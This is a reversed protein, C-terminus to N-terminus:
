DFIFKDPELPYGNEWNGEYMEGPKIFFKGYGDFRGEKFHGEYYAGDTYHIICFGERIGKDFEGECVEGDPYEYKGIGGFNGNKFEGKYIRFKEDIFEGIGNQVGNKFNGIYEFKRLIKGTKPLILSIIGFDDFQFYKFNGEYKVNMKTHCFKGKGNWKGQIHQGEYIINNPYIFKGYEDVIGNKFLGRYETGDEFKHIGFGNLPDNNNLYIVKNLNKNTTLIKIENFLLCVQKNIDVINFNKKKNMKENLSILKKDGSKKCYESIKNKIENITPREESNTNCCKQIITKIEEPWKENTIDPLPYFIDPNKEIELRRYKNPSEGKFIEYILVGFSYIDSKITRKGNEYLEPAAFGITEGPSIDEKIGSMGFDALKLTPYNDDNQYGKDLLVNLSKLDGHIIKRNHLFELGDCIEFLCYIKFYLSLNNNNYIFRTLCGGEEYDMLIKTNSTHISILKIINENFLNVMSGAEKFLNILFRKKKDKSLDKTSLYKAAVIKKEGNEDKYNITEKVVVGFSGEGIINEQNGNYHTKDIHTKKTNDNINNQNVKKTNNSNNLPLNSNLNLVKKSQNNSNNNNNYHLNNYSNSPDQNLNIDNINSHHNHTPDKEYSLNFPEDINSHHNHTPNKEYNLNFPENINSHHTHTPDKENQHHTHTPDKENQHHTHTLDIDKKQSIQYKNQKEPNYVNNSEYILNANNVKNNINIHIKNYQKLNQTNDKDINSQINNNQSNQPKKFCTCGM